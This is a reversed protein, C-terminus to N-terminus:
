NRALSAPARRLRRGSADDRQNRLGGGRFDGGRHEGGRAVGALRHDHVEEAGVRLRDASRPQRGGFGELIRREGGDGEGPRPASSGSAGRSATQDAGDPRSGVICGRGRYRRCTRNRPSAQQEALRQLVDIGVRRDAAGPRQVIDPLAAGMRKDIEAVVHERAAPRMRHDVMTQAVFADDILRAIGPGRDDQEVDHEAIARMGVRRGLDGRDHTLRDGPRGLRPAVEADDAEDAARWASGCDSEPCSALSRSAPMVSVALLAWATRSAARIASRARPSSGGRGPHPAGSGHIEEVLRRLHEVDADGREAVRDSLGAARDRLDFPRRRGAAIAGDPARKRLEDVVRGDLRGIARGVGGIERRLRHEVPIPVAPSDIGVM